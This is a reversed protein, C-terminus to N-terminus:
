MVTVVCTATYGGDATTATITAAGPALATIRGASNVSVLGPKDSAWTVNKNLANIPLIAPALTKTQGTGLALAPELWISSVAGGNDLFVSNATNGNANSTLLREVGNVWLTALSSNSSWREYGAMYVDNGSVFVSNAQPYGILGTLYQPIGNVWLAARTYSGAAYGAVYVDNGSVFVSNATTSATGDSLLYQPVRNVWLTARTYSGAPVYGAVYVDNGSVFVSNAQAYGTGDTLYQPIGNLWLTARTYSGAPVYGAVYVDNGSVFVSNAGGDNPLSQAVYDKWLTPESRNNGAVYVNAVTM